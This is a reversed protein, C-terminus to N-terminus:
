NPTKLLRRKYLVMAVTLAILLLLMSTWTPFEPVVPYNDQEVGTTSYIGYPTDWIGSGNIEEADPYRDEYDSWYNGGSPYGNDWTNGSGTSYTQNRNDTFNNHYIKNLSSYVIYIGYWDNLAITNGSITNNGLPSGFFIEIGKHNNTITNNIIINNSFGDILIGAWNNNTIVNNSIVCSNSGIHVGNTHPYSTGSNRITFGSVIVNNSLIEVPTGSRDGDIITTSRDEGILSLPKNVAICEHYLGADVLITHGNLTENDNIAEQITSFNKGSDVNHVPLDVEMPLKTETSYSVVPSMFRVFVATSLFVLVFALLVAKKM